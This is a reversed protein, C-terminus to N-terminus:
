PAPVERAVEASFMTAGTRTLHIGDTFYEDTLSPVRRKDLITFNSRQQLRKLASLYERYTDATEEGAKTGVPPIVVVLKFNRQVAIQALESVVAFRDQVVHHSVASPDRSHYDEVVGQSPMFGRSKRLQSFEESPSYNDRIFPMANRLRPLYFRDVFSYNGLVHQCYISSIIEQEFDKVRPNNNFSAPTLSALVLKPAQYPERLLPFTTLRLALPFNAPWALNYVDKGAWSEGSMSAPDLDRAGTSDGVILVDPNRNTSVRTRYDEFKVAALKDWYEWRQGVRGLLFRSAGEAAGFLALAIVITTVFGAPPRGIFEVTKFSFISSHYKRM